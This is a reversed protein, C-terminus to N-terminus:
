RKGDRDERWFCQPQRAEIVKLSPQTYRVLPYDRWNVGSGAVNCLRLAEVPCAEVCRPQKDEELRDRCMDCKAVKGTHPLIRPPM